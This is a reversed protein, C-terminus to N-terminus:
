SCDNDKYPETRMTHLDVSIRHERSNSGEERVAELVVEEDTERVEKFCERVRWVIGQACMRAEQVGDVGDRAVDRAAAEAREDWVEDPLASLVLM